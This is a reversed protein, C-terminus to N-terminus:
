SRTGVSAISTIVVAFDFLSWSDGFFDWFWYSFMNWALEVTFLITFSLELYFFAAGLDDATRGMPLYQSTLM